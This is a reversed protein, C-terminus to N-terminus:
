GCNTLAFTDRGGELWVERFITSGGEARIEAAFRRGPPPWWHGEAADQSAGTICPRHGLTPLQISSVSRPGTRCCRRGGLLRHARREGDVGAESGGRASSIARPARCYGKFGAACARGCM